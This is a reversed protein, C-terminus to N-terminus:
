EPKLSFQSPIKHTQMIELLVERHLLVGTPIISTFLKSNTDRCLHEPHQKHSLAWPKPEPGHAPHSPFGAVLTWRSSDWQDTGATMRCGTYVWIWKKLDLVWLKGKNCSGGGERQQSKKNIVTPLLCIERALLCINVLSTKSVSWNCFGERCDNLFDSARQGEEWELKTAM